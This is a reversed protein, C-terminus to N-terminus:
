FSLGALVFLLTKIIQLSWDGKAPKVKEILEQIGESKFSFPLCLLLSISSPGARIQDM